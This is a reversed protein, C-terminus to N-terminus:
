HPAVTLVFCGADRAIRKKAEVILSSDAPGNMDAGPAACALTDIVLLRVPGCEEGMAKLSAITKAVSGEDRLDLPGDSIMVDVHDLERARMLADFRKEIGQAGELALYAVM